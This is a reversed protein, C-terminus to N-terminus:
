CGMATTFFKPVQVFLLLGGRTKEDIKLIPQLDSRAAYHGLACEPNRCPHPYLVYGTSSWGWTYFRMTFAEPNKSERLALAVDLLRANGFARREDASTKVADRWPFQTNM